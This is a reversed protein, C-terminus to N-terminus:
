HYIAFSELEKEREIIKRKLWRDEVKEVSDHYEEVSIPSDIPRLRRDKPSRARIAEDIIETLLVRLLYAFLELDKREIDAIALRLWDGFAQRGKSM